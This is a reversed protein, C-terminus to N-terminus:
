CNTPGFQPQDNYEFDHVFNMITLPPTIFFFYSPPPFLKISINM